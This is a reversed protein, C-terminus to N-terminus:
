VAKKAPAHESEYRVIEEKLKNMARKISRLSQVRVAENGIPENKCTSYLEELENLKRRTIELQTQSKIM